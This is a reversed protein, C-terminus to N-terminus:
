PSYVRRRARAFRPNRERGDCIGRIGVQKPHPSIQHLSLLEGYSIAERHASRLSDELLWNLDAKRSIEPPLPFPLLSVGIDQLFGYLVPTAPDPLRFRTTRWRWRARLAWRLRLCPERGLLHLLRPRPLPLPLLPWVLSHHPRRGGGVEAVVVTVVAGADV